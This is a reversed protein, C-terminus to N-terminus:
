RPSKNAAADKRIADRGVLSDMRGLHYGTEYNKKGIGQYTNDMPM